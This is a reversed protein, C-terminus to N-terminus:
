GVKDSAREREYQEIEERTYIKVPGPQYDPYEMKDIKPLVVPKIQGPNRGDGEDSESGLALAPAKHFTAFTEEINDKPLALDEPAGPPAARNQEVVVERQKRKVSKTRHQKLKTLIPHSM